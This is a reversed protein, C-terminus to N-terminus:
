LHLVVTNPELINQLHNTMLRVVTGVYKDSHIAEFPLVYESFYGIGTNQSYNQYENEFFADFCVTRLYKYDPARDFKEHVRDIFTSLKPPLFLIMEDIVMSNRVKRMVDRLEATYLSLLEAEWSVTTM